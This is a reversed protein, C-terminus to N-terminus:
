RKAYRLYRSAIITVIVNFVFFAFVIFVDRWRNDYSINLPTYFEDGVAYECYECSSTANPNNLYGGAATVFDNAM